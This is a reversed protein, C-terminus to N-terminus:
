GTQVATLELQLLFLRMMNKKHYLVTDPGSATTAKQGERNIHLQPARTNHTDDHTTTSPQVYVTRMDYNTSRFVHSTSSPVDERGMRGNDEM